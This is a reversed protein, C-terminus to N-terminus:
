ASLLVMAAASASAPRMMFSIRSSAPNATPYSYPLAQANVRCASNACQHARNFPQRLAFPEYNVLSFNAYNATRSAVRWAYALPITMEGEGRHKAPPFRDGNVM